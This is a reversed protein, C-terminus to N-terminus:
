HGRSVVNLTQRVRGRPRGDSGFLTATVVYTGQPLSPFEFINTRAAQDGELPITSSRYFDESQATIEVARNYANLEITTQVRVFAPAFSVAPSVKMRLPEGASSPITTATLMLIGGLRLGWKM